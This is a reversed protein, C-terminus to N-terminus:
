ILGREQRVKKLYAVGKKVTIQAYYPPDVKDSRQLALFSAIEEPRFGLSLARITFAMDMESLSKYQSKRKYFNRYLEELTPDPSPKIVYEKREIPREIPKVERETQGWIQFLIEFVDKPYKQKTVKVKQGQNKDIWITDGAIPQVLDQKGPKRNRLGPIRFVRAVDQTSDLGFRQNLGKMIAQLKWVEIPERSIWYVQYNGKSSKVVYSPELLRKAKIEQWIERWLSAASKQKCDLDIYVAVQFPLFDEARRREATPCLVNISAYVNYGEANLKRLYPLKREIDAIRILFQMRKEPSVALIAIQNSNPNVDPRHYLMNRFEGLWNRTMEDFKNM